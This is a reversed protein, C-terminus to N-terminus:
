AQWTFGCRPCITPKRGGLLALLGIPFFIICLLIQWGPVGGRTAFAECKPCSLQNSAGVPLTHLAPNFVYEPLLQTVDYPFVGRSKAEFIAAHESDAEIQLTRDKGTKADAGNVNYKVQDVEGRSVILRCFLNQIFL